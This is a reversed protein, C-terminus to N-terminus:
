HLGLGTACLQLLKGLEARQPLGALNFLGIVILVLGVIGRVWPLRSLQQWHTAAGALALMMPLTGVGFALMVSAGVLAAHGEGSSAQSGAVSMATALSTYVLGCPIWGWVAGAGFQAYTKESQTASRLCIIAPQLRRWIRQGLQELASVPQALITLLASGTLQAGVGIVLLNAIVFLLARIPMTDAVLWASAAAASLAGATAGFLAYTSLRGLNWYLAATVVPKAHHKSGTPAEIRIALPPRATLTDAIGGVSTSITAALQHTHASQGVGASSANTTALLKRPSQVLMATMGTGCMGACHTSGILGFLFSAFLASPVGSATVGLASELM